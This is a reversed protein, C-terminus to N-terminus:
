RWVPREGILDFVANASNPQAPLLHLTVMFVEVFAFARVFTRAKKTFRIPNLYGHYM